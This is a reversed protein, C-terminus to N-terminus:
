ATKAALGYARANPCFGTAETQTLGSPNAFEAHCRGTQGCHACALGVDRQLDADHAVSADAGFLGAMWFLRQVQEEPMQALARLSSAGFGTEELDAFGLAAIEADTRRRDRWADYLESHGTM